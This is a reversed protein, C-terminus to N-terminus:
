PGQSDGETGGGGKEVPPPRRPQGPVGPKSWEKLKGARSARWGMIPSQGWLRGGRMRKHMGTEDSLACASTLPLVWHTRRPSSLRHWTSTPVVTHPLAGGCDNFVVALLPLVPWDLIPLRPAMRPGPSPATPPRRSHHRGSCRTISPVAPRDELVAQRRALGSARSTQCRPSAAHRGNARSTQCRPSVAHRGTPGRHRVDPVSPPVARQGEIDSMPSQRRSPGSVRSTQVGEPRGPVVTSPRGGAALGSVGIM